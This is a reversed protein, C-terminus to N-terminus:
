HIRSQLKNICFFNNRNRHICERGGAEDRNRQNNAQMARPIRGKGCSTGSLNGFVFASRARRAASGSSMRTVVQSWPQAPRPEANPVEVGVGAGGDIGGEPDIATFTVGALAVTIKPLGWINVAVTVFALSVVTTHLTFPTAPPLVAVPV